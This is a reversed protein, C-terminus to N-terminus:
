TTETGIITSYLDQTQNDENKKVVRITTTNATGVVTIPQSLLWMHANPSSPTGMVVEKSTFAESAAGDGIQLEVKMYGSSSAKVGYLLFTNGSAVSYDHNSTADKVIASATDFDHVETGESPELAVALPNSASYPEGAEDRIGVDLVRVDGAGNAVSTIRLTQQSDAPSANRVLGVLGVQSPDTNNTGDYEGDVSASGLESMRLTEDGGAPNNGKTNVSLNGDTDIAGGQTPTTFDVLKSQIREDSDAGTKVRLSTEQDAM